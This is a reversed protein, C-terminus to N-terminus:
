ETALDVVGVGGGRVVVLETASRFFGRHGLEVPRSMMHRLKSPVDTLEVGRPGSKVLLGEDSIARVMMGAEAQEDLAIKGTRTSLVRLRWTWPKSVSQTTLAVYRGHISLVSEVLPENGDICGLKKVTFPSILGVQIVCTKIQPESSAVAIANKADADIVFRDHAGATGTLQKPLSSLDTPMVFLEYKARSKDIKGTARRFLLNMGDPTFRPDYAAESTLRRMVHGNDDAIYLWDGANFAIPGGQVSKSFRGCTGFPFEEAIRAGRLLEHGFAPSSLMGMLEAIENPRKGITATPLRGLEPFTAEALVTGSAVDVVRTQLTERADSDLRRLLARRGDQSLWEFFWHEEPMKLAAPEAIRIVPASSTRVPPPAFPARAPACSAVALSSALAGLALFTRM